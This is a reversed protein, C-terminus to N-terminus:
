ERSDTIDWWAGVYEVHDTEERLIRRQDHLWHYDGNIDKFRYEKTLTGTESGYSEAGVDDPHLCSYWFEMNGVFHEPRFGLIDTVNDNIFTIDLTGDHYEKYSYIVAPTRSILMRLLEENKELELENNKRESIDTILGIIRDPEGDTNKVIGAVERVWRTEGDATIIRHDYELDIGENLETIPSNTSLVYDRDDPHVRSIFDDYTNKFEGEDLGFLSECEKSWYLFGDDMNYEWSGTKAFRQALAYRRESQELLLRATERETVDRVVAMYNLGWEVVRAEFFHSEEQFDLGYVIPDTSGVTELESIANKLSDVLDADLVDDVPRGLFDEPESLLWSGSPAHCERFILDRDIIFMMDPFATLLAQNRSNKEEIDDIHRDRKTLNALMDAFVNLVNHETETYHHHDSVSDFGIFGICVDQDFFPITLLSKIGQEMLIEKTPIEPMANVDEIHIAQGNFHACVWEPVEEFPIDKLLEIQPEIGQACWEYTNSTLQNDHDYRFIYVRDSGLARGIDELAREIVEEKRELSTYIFSHTTMALLRQLESQRIIEAEAEIEDSIDRVVVILNDDLTYSASIQLPVTGGDVRRGSLRCSYNDGSSFVNDFEPKLPGIISDDFLDDWSVGMMDEANEYGFTDSLSRNAYEITFKRNLLAMGDFSADMASRHKLASQARKKEVAHNVYSVLEAFQSRPEGGKQIYFDAGNNLAEIAVEERGRGTFIIFPIGMESGRIQKLLQIGNMGPMDYDSILVDFRESNLIDHVKTPMDCITVDCTGDRELFLKTIELLAPEDDVYLIKLFGDPLGNRQATM